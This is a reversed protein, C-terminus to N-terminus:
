QNVNLRTEDNNDNLNNGRMHSHYNHSINHRPVSKLNSCNVKITIKLETATDIKGVCVGLNFNSSKDSEINSEHASVLVAVLIPFM